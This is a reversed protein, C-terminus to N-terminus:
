PKLSLSCDQGVWTAPITFLVKFSDDGVKLQINTGTADSKAVTVINGNTAVKMAVYDKFDTTGGKTNKISTASHFLSFLEPSSFEAGYDTTGLQKGPSGNPSVQYYTIKKTSRNVDVKFQADITFDELFEDYPDIYVCEPAGLLFGFSFDSNIRRYILVSDSVLKSGPHVHSIGVITNCPRDLAQNSKFNPISGVVDINHKENYPLLIDFEPNGESQITTTDTRFYETASPGAYPEDFVGLSLNNHSKVVSTFFNNVPFPFFNPQLKYLQYADWPRADTQRTYVPTDGSSAISVANTPKVINFKMWMGGRYFRFVTAVYDIIDWSYAPNSLINEAPVTEMQPRFVFPNFLVLTNVSSYGDNAEPNFVQYFPSGQWKFVYNSLLAMLNLTEPVTKAPNRNIPAHPAAISEAKQSDIHETRTPLLDTTGQKNVPFGAINRRTQVTDSLFQMTHVYNIVNANTGAKATMQIGLDIPLGILYEESRPYGTSYFPCSAYYIGNAVEEKALDALKTKTQWEVLSADLGGGSPVSFAGYKIAYPPEPLNEIQEEVTEGDTMTLPFKDYQIAVSKEQPKPLRIQKQVPLNTIGRFVFLKFNDAASIEAYIDLNDDVTETCVLANQVEISIIGTSNNASAAFPHVDLMANSTVFPIRMQCSSTTSLDVVMSYASSKTQDDVTKPDILAGPYYIVRIRGNHFKTKPIYLDLILDGQWYNALTSAFMLLTPHNVIKKATPQPFAANEPCLLPRVPFYGLVKGQVDSKKWNYKAFYTPVAAMHEFSMENEKTAFPASTSSVNGSRSVTMVESKTGHTKFNSQKVVPFGFIKQEVEPLGVPVKVVEPQSKPFRARLANLDNTATPMQLDVNMFKGWVVVEATNSSTDSLPAYEDIYLNGIQGVGKSLDIHSLPSVYPIHFKATNGTGLDLDVRPFGTIGTLTSRASQTKADEYPVYTVILRGRQFPTANVQVTIEVDARFLMFGAIKQLKVMSLVDNPLVLTLLNRPAMPNGSDHPQWTFKAVVEPRELFDLISHHREERAASVHTQAVQKPLADETTISNDEHQKVTQETRTSMVAQQDADDGGQTTKNTSEMLLTYTQSLPLSALFSKSALHSVRALSAIM